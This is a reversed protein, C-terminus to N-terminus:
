FKGFLIFFLVVMAILLFGYFISVSWSMSVKFVTDIEQIYPRYNLDGPVAQKGNVIADHLKVYCRELQLYRADMFWFAIIPVCGGIAILWHPDDSLGSLVFVATVLSVTWTKMQASNRAMRSIVGQIMELHKYDPSKNPEKSESAM